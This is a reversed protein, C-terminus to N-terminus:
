TELKCRAHAMSDNTAQGPRCYKEVDDCLCSKRFFSVSGSIYTESEEVVNIQLMEWELFFRAVYSWFRTNTKM